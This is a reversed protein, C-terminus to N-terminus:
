VPKSDKLQRLPAKEVWPELFDLILQEDMREQLHVYHTHATEVSRHLHAPDRSSLHTHLDLLARLSGPLSAKTRPSRRSKLGPEGENGLTFTKREQLGLGTLYEPKTPPLFPFSPLSLFPNPPLPLFSLKWKLKSKSFLVQLGGGVWFGLLGDVAWVAQWLVRAMQM